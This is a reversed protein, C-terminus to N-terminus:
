KFRLAEKKKRLEEIKAEIEDESMEEEDSSEDAPHSKGHEKLVAEGDVEAEESEPAEGEVLEEAKELGAKLGEKDPAAVEVKKLGRIEDGMSDSAMKAIHKLIDMKVGKEKPDMGKGPKKKALEELM